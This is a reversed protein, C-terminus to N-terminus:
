KKPVNKPSGFIYLLFFFPDARSNQCLDITRSAATFFLFLSFFLPPSLFFSCFFFLRFFNSRILRITTERFIVYLNDLKDVTPYVVTVDGRIHSFVRTTNLQVM